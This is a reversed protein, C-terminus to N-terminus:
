SQGAQIRVLFLAELPRQTVTVGCPLRQRTAQETQLFACRASGVIVGFVKPATNGNCWLALCKRNEVGFANAHERRGDSNGIKSQPIAFSFSGRSNNRARSRCAFISLPAKAPLAASRFRAPM